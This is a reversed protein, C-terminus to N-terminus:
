PYSSSVRYFGLIIGRLLGVTVVRCIHVPLAYVGGVMRAMQLPLRKETLTIIRLLFLLILRFTYFLFLHFHFSIHM